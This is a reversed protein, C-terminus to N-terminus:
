FLLMEKRNIDGSKVVRMNIQLDKHTIQIHQKHLVFSKNRYKLKKGILEYDKPNILLLSPLKTGQWLVRYNHIAAQLTEYTKM